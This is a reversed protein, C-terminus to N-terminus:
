PQPSAGTLEQIVRQREDLRIKREFEAVSAEINLRMEEWPSLKEVKARAKIAQLCDIFRRAHKDM